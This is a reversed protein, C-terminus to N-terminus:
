GDLLVIGAIAGIGLLAAPHVRGQVTLMAGAATLALSVAPRDSTAWVSAAFSLGTAVILGSTALAVGRILGSWGRMRRKAFLRIAAVFGAPPLLAAVVALVAGPIGSAFYGLSVLYLGSPGPSLRGIAIAELFQQDTLIGHAILDARLMPLAALGGVSLASARLFSILLDTDSM